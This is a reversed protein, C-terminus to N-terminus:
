ENFSPILLTPFDRIKKSRCYGDMQHPWKMLFDVFKRFVVDRCRDLFVAPKSTWDGVIAGAVHPRREIDATGRTPAPSVAVANAVLAAGRALLYRLVLLDDTAAGFIGRQRRHRPPTPSRDDSTDKIAM